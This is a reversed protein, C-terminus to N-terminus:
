IAGGLVWLVAVAGWAEAPIEIQWLLGMCACAVALVVGSAIAGARPLGCLRGWEWGAAGILVITLVAFPLPSEAIVAPILLALLVLATIVRERLM